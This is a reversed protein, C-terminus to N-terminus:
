NDTETAKKASTFEALNVSIGFHNTTGALHFVSRAYDFQFKKVKIGFGMSFGVMGAKSDNRLQLDSRRQHHYGARLQFNDSLILETGFTFHRLIVEGWPTSTEEEEVGTGFVDGSSFDNPSEYWFNPNQLNHATISFQFPAHPLKTTIGLQLEFPMPEFNNESYTIFQTGLNKMVFGARTLKNNALWNVGGDVLVGFSNYQQFNSSVLKLSAGYTINYKYYNSWSLFLATESASFDGTIEGAINAEIFEGYHIFKAGALFTGWNKYQFAYASFGYNIDALYNTYNIDLQKNHQASDLLSPNFYVMELSPDLHSINTGSLAALKPATVTNLFQYTARGGIQAKAFGFSLLLFLSLGIKQM